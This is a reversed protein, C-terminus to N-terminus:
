LLCLVSSLVSYNSLLSGFIDNPDRSFCSAGSGVYVTEAHRADYYRSYGNFSAIFRTANVYEDHAAYKLSCRSWRYLVPCINYM